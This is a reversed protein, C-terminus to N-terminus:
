INFARKTHNLLKEIKKVHAIQQRREKLIEITRYPSEELRKALHNDKLHNRAWNSFDNKEKTIHHKFAEDPSTRELAEILEHISNM